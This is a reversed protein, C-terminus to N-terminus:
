RAPRLLSSASVHLGTGNWSVGSLDRVVTGAATSLAREGIGLVHGAGATLGARVGAGSDEVVVCDAIALGLHAAAQLYGNPAPKGVAVDDGTVSVAPAPLGAATLRAHLLTPSASTVVAWPAPLAALLERAGAIPKTGAAGAIEITDIRALAEAHLPAPLFLAITEISRRGHVGDLVSEADVGFERSWQRWGEEGSATSDVLVGDCDFLVGDCALDLATPM